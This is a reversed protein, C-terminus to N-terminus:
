WSTLKQFWKYGNVLIEAKVPKVKQLDEVTAPLSVLDAASKLNAKLHNVASDLITIQPPWIVCLHDNRAM